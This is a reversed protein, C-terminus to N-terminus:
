SVLLIMERLQAFYLKGQPTVLTYSGTDGGALFYPRACMRVLRNYRLVLTEEAMRDGAAAQACLIEDSPEQHLQEPTM